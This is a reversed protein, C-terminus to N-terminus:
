RVLRFVAKYGLEREPFVRLLSGSHPRLDPNVIWNGIEEAVSETKTWSDYDTGESPFSNRNAPTDLVNPLIATVTPSDIPLQGRKGLTQIVHHVANKALGYGIMDPTPALAASAGIAVFLGKRNLRTAAVQSAAIVPYLNQQIMKEVSMLYDESTYDVSPMWGGATCIVADFSLNDDDDDAKELGSMLTRTLRQLSGSGGEGDDDLSVFHDLVSDSDSPPKMDAGVLVSSIKSSHLYECVASGLAGSSGIV